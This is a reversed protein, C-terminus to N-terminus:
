PHILSDVREIRHDAIFIVAVMFEALKGRTGIVDQVENGCPDRTEEDKSTVGFSPPIGKRFRNTPQLLSALFWGLGFLPNRSAAVAQCSPTVNPPLLVYRPITESLGSIPGPSRGNCAACILDAIRCICITENAKQISM